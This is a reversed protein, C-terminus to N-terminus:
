KTSRNIWHFVDLAGGGGGGNWQRHICIQFFKNESSGSGNYEISNLTNRYYIM